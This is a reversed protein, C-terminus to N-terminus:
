QETIDIHCPSFVTPVFAYESNEHNLIITSDHPILGAFVSVQFEYKNCTISLRRGTELLTIAIQGIEVNTERYATSLISEGLM